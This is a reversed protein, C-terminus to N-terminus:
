GRSHRLWIRREHDSLARRQDVTHTPVWWDPLDLTWLREARSHEARAVASRLRDGFRGSPVDGAVATFPELGHERFRQERALDTRRQARTLHGDGDYEGVVGLVPDVLDPTGLHIGDLDFVPRNTLPRTGTVEQWALRAHVEQPSWANEDGLAAGAEARARDRHWPHDALWDTLEAPSVLDAAYAMDLAEVALALTPARRMAFCVSAIPPTVRLGDVLQFTRPDVREQSLRFLPQPRLAQHTATLDVPRPSGDYTTGTAWRAGHWCLAAWGTVAVRPSRALVGAEVVRQTPTLEVHAPVYLGRSSRRWGEGAAERRTPGAVGREDTRVPVV